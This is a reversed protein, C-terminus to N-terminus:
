DAKSVDKEEFTAPEDTVESALQRTPFPKAGDVGARVTSLLLKLSCLCRPGIAPDRTSSPLCNIVPSLLSPPKM